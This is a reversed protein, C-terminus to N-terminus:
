RGSAAGRGTAAHHTAGPVAAVFLRTLEEVIPDVPPAPTTSAWWGLLEAVAGTLALALLDRHEPEPLGLGAAEGAIVDAFALSARHRDGLLRGAAPVARYAVRARRPDETLAGVYATLGARVKGEVTPPAAALAARLDDVAALVVTTAVERLLDERTDFEEYFARTGVRATACLLAISAEEWGVTGFVELGADLLRRRREARREDPARGAYARGTAPPEPTM